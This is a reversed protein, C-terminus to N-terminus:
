RRASLAPSSALRMRELWPELDRRYAADDLDPWREGDFGRRMDLQERAPLLVLPAGAAKPAAPPQLATPPLALLKGADSWHPDFDLVLYRLRRAQLDLVLDEVQGVARGERDRVDRGILASARALPPGDPGQLAYHRQAQRQLALLDPWDDQGFAPAARVQARTADLVLANGTRAAPRLAAAPVIFRRGQLEPEGGLSLVAWRLTGDQPDLVLDNVEGLVGGAADRLERGLLRSARLDRGAAPAVAASPPAASAEGEAPASEAGWPLLVLLGWLVARHLLVSSWCAM